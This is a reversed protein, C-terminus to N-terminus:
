RDYRFESVLGMYPPTTHPHHTFFISKKWYKFYLLFIVNKTFTLLINYFFWELLLIQYLIRIARRFNCGLYVNKSFETTSGFDM